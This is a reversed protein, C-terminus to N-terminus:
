RKLARRIRLRSIARMQGPKIAPLPRRHAKRAPVDAGARRLWWAASLGTVGGGVVVVGAGDTRTM